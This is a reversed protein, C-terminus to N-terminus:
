SREQLINSSRLILTLGNIRIHINENGIVKNKQEITRYCSGKIVTNKRFSQHSTFEISKTM